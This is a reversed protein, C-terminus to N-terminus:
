YTWFIWWRQQWFLHLINGPTVRPCLGERSDYAYVHLINKELLMHQQAGRETSIDAEGSIEQPRLTKNKGFFPKSTPITCCIAVNNNKLLMSKRIAHCVNKVMQSGRFHVLILNDSFLIKRIKENKEVFDVNKWFIIDSVYVLALMRM